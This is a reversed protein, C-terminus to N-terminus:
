CGDDRLAPAFRSGSLSPHPARPLHDNPPLPALLAPSPLPATAQAGHARLQRRVWFLIGGIMGLPLLSLLITSTRFADLTEKRMDVCVSCAWASQTSACALLCVLAALWTLSRRPLVRAGDIGKRYM